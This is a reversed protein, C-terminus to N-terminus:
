GHQSYSDLFYIHLPCSVAFYYLIIINYICKPTIFVTIIDIIRGVSVSNSTIWEM